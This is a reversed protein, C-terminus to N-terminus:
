LLQYLILCNGDLNIGGICFIQERFFLFCHNNTIALCISCGYYIYLLDTALLYCCCFSCIYAETISMLLSNEGEFLNRQSNFPLHM